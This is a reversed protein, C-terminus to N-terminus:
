GGAEALYAWVQLDVDLIVQGEGNGKITIQRIRVLDPFDNRLKGLYEAINRYEGSFKINVPFEKIVYGTIKGPIVQSDDPDMKAVNLKLRRAENSLDEVVDDQRSPMKAALQNLKTNLDRVAQELPLGQTIRNIEAIETEAYNLRTKINKLRNKQPNYIFIVCLFLFILLVASIYIIKKQEKTPQMM